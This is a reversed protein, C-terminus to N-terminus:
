VGFSPTPNLAGTSGVTSPSSDSGRALPLLINSGSGVVQPAVDNWKEVVKLEVLKPAKELAATNFRRRAKPEDVRASAAANFGSLAHPVITRNAANAM